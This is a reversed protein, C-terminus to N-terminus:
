GPTSKDFARVATRAIFYEKALQAVDADFQSQSVSPDKFDNVATMADYWVHILDITATEYTHQQTKSGQFGSLSSYPLHRTDYQMHATAAELDAPARSTLETGTSKIQQADNWLVEVQTHEESQWTSSAGAPLGLFTVTSTVSIAGSAILSRIKM